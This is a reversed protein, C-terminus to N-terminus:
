SPLRAPSARLLGIRRSGDSAVDGCPGPSDRTGDERRGPLSGPPLGCCAQVLRGGWAAHMSSTLSHRRVPVCFAWNPRVLTRVTLALGCRWIPPEARPNGRCASWAGCDAHLRRHAPADVGHTSPRRAQCGVPSTGRSAQLWREALLRRIMSVYMMAAVQALTEPQDQTAHRSRRSLWATLRTTAVAGAQVAVRTGEAPLGDM